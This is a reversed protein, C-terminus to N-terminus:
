INNLIPLLQLQITQNIVDFAIMKQPGMAHNVNRIKIIGFLNFKMANYVLELIEILIHIINVHM